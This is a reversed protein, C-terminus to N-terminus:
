LILCFNQPKRLRFRRGPMTVITVDKDLSQERPAARTIALKKITTALSNRCHRGEHHYDAQYIRRKGRAYITMKAGVLTRETKANMEGM